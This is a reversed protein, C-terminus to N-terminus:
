RRVPPLDVLRVGAELLAEELYPEAWDMFEALKTMKSGDDLVLGGKRIAQQAMAMMRASVTTNFPTRRERPALTPRGLKRAMLTLSEM